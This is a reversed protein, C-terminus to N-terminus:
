GVCGVAGAGAWVLRPLLTAPGRSHRALGRHVHRISCAAAVKVPLLLSSRLAPNVPPGALRLRPEVLRRVLELLSRRPWSRSSRLSGCLVSPAAGGYGVPLLPRGVTSHGSNVLLLDHANDGPDHKSGNCAEDGFM